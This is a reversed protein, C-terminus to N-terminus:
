GKKKVRGESKIAKRFSELTKTPNKTKEAATGIQIWDAGADM